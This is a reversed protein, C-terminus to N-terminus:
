SVAEIFYFFAEISRNKFEFGFLIEKKPFSNSSYEAHSYKFLVARSLCKFKWNSTVLHQKKQQILKRCLFYQESVPVKM